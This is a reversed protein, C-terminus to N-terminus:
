ADFYLTESDLMSRKRSVESWVAALSVEQAGVDKEQEEEINQSM